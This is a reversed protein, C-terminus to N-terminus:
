TTINKKPAIYDLITQLAQEQNNPTITVFSMGSSEVAQRKIKDRLDSTNNYHGKGNYEIAIIPNFNKDTICFDLRKCMVVKYIDLNKHSLVEGLSVQAFVKMSDSQQCIKVLSWYVKRESFNLLPKTQYFTKKTKSVENKYHKRDNSGKGSIVFLYIVVLVFILILVEM